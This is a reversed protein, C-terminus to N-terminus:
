ARRPLRAVLGLARARDVAERRSHMGARAYLNSM